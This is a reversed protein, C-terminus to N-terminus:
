ICEFKHKTCKKDTYNSFLYIIHLAGRGGYFMKAGGRGWKTFIQSYALTGNIFVYGIEPDVRGYEELGSAMMLIVFCLTGFPSDLEGGLLVQFVHCSM